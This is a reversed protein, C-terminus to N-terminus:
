VKRHMCSSDGENQTHGKELFLYTIKFKLIFSAYEWMAFIFRNRNQEGCNDSYFVFESFDMKKMLEMFKFLYTATENAGRKAESENQMFCYGIKKAIDYVTFNYTAFKRKCYFNSAEGQPTTLAKQLDFLAVCLNPNSIGCEKDKNKM